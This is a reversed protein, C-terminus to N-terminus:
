SRGCRRGGAWSGITGPGVPLIVTRLSGLRSRTEWTIPVAATSSHMSTTGATARTHTCIASTGRNWSRSRAGIQKSQLQEYLAVVVKHIDTNSYRCGEQRRGEWDWNPENFPSIGDFDIGEVDRFHELIAAMYTAFATIKDERLNTAGSDRSCYAQGNQTMNVPPSNVFAIFQEVGRAKAAQLFWRQGPCRTWDYGGSATDLFTDARRWPDRISTQRSSGAGLNFRWASLGIGRPNRNDDLGTQFLLDAIAERKADPWQGVFQIAWADSAGFNRITQRTQSVDITLVLPSTAETRLDGGNGPVCPVYSSYATGACLWLIAAIRIVPSDWLRM